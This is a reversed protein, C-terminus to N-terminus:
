KNWRPKTSLKWGVDPGPEEEGMETMLGTAANEKVDTITISEVLDEPEVVYLRMGSLLGAKRGKDLTVATDKFMWESVSPRTTHSGVAVITALIPTELLYTRYADPVRPLGSVRKDADGRRLLYSGRLYERPESRANFDNCFGVIDDSPILYTREGWSVSIFEEAIGQFGRRKNPYTFSLKITGTTSSVPGYNRDYLGLCGHWEFLYGSQPALMFSVNVGLGDGYYYEGAWPHKGLSQIEEKIKQRLQEAATAAEEAYKAEDQGAAAAMSAVLTFAIPLVYHSTRM